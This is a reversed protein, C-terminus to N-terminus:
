LSGALHERIAILNNCLDAAIRKEVLAVPLYPRPSVEVAYTLRMASEGPPACGPLPQMRWVGKNNAFTIIYCITLMAQVLHLPYIILVRVQYMRFEGDDNEISQMSIDKHPLSSLAFPRPFVYRTLERGISEKARDSRSKGEFVEDEYHSLDPMGNPWERVELTTRASFNIGVVKAGGVQKLVAGKMRNAIERCQEADSLESQISAIPEPDNTGPYLQLVENVVLNPM